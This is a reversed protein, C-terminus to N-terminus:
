MTKRLRAVSYAGLQYTAGPSLSGDAAALYHPRLAAELFTRESLELAQMGKAGLGAIAVPQTTETLNAMWLEVNPGSAFAICTVKGSDSSDSQISGAGAAAAMGKVVHYVPYVAAPPTGDYYPQPYDAKRAIIGSPGTPAGITVVDVGGKAFVAIYGLTWAAGFLGRQRPDMKALCVRGNNPNDASTAGYPNDRAPIASPGVRYPRGKIFARTSQIVYPLAELTEMVSIDDASHVIPSTTHTVFDLLEAPPRNRNLETFYSYMGGGLPIGPFAARAAAYLVEYPPVGPGKSGPLVAKLHPAPSVTVASLRLGAAAIHHAIPALEEVPGAKAPLIIEAVIEAGTQAALQAISAATSATDARRGDFQCVLTAVGAARILPAVALSAAVEEAPVGLGIRPMRQGTASGVEIAVPRQGTRVVPAPLPGSFTLSVSQTFEQAAQLTYPWPRALPRVYTKFSADTWNRHDEMEFSDGDMRCTVELTPQVEHTLARIDYFPQIPNIIAPFESQEKSGDVHEVEVPRGAVGNLPHLVVFGTRNTLFDTDPRAKVLFLVNGDPSCTIDAHYSISRKADRCRADYGVSFGAAGEAVKLNSIEPTFTGWNEDRVLFAVARMVEVDNLRIYRLAGNDLVASLAGARLQRGKADETETGFLKVARSPEVAPM